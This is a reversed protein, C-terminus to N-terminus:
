RLREDFGELYLIPITRSLNLSNMKSELLRFWSTQILEDTMEIWIFDYHIQELLLLETLCEREDVEALQEFLRYINEAPQPLSDQMIHTALYAIRKYYPVAGLFTFVIGRGQELSSTRLHHKGPQWFLEQLILIDKESIM